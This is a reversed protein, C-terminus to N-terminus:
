RAVTRRVASVHYCILSVAGGPLPAEMVTGLSLREERLGVEVRLQLLPLSCPAASFTPRAPTFQLQLRALRLCLSSCLPGMSPSHPQPQTRAVHAACWVVACMHPEGYRCCAPCSRM